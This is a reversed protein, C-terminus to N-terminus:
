LSERGAALFVGELDAAGFKGKLEEPSGSVLIGGDRVLAVMECKAAEDMVHTTLVITKGQAMLELLEQWVSQRLEPDIGVTPEDLILLKPDHVLAIALSLRRKMGGSYAAVKKDLSDDLQVLNSVYAIRNTLVLGRLGFLSAFFELNEKGSLEPYLADSQAMYGIDQLLQLNPVKKGLVTVSGTDPSDIGVIMKVLTTKGSGSPGIFGFIQGEDVTLEVDKLVEQKGYKKNLGEIRITHNM